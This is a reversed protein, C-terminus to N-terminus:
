DDRNRKRLNQFDHVKEVKKSGEEKNKNEEKKKDDKQNDPVENLPILKKKCYSWGLDNFNPM